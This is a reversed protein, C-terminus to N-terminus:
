VKKIGNVQCACDTYFKRSEETNLCCDGKDYLCLENNAVEDCIGDGLLFSNGSCTELNGIPNEDKNIDTSIM